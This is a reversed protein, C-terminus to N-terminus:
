KAEVTVDDLWASGTGELLLVLSFRATDNPLTVQKEFHTWGATGELYGTQLFGIPTWSVNMPQVAAHAKVEGASKIWGSVTVKRGAAAEIFQAAQGQAPGGGTSSLRLSAAGGHHEATDRALTVAGSGTWNVAWGDPTAGGAEMGGNVAAIPPAPAAPAPPAAAAAPAPPPDAVPAPVIAPPASAQAATLGTEGPAPAAIRWLGYCEGAAWAERTLPNVRVCTVEHPGAGAGQSSGGSLATTVTLNRWTRGGDTSRCVAAATAYTNQAGAVYVVLPQKPDTAVTWVRQRGFQDAPTDLTTWTKGDWVKLRDQSAAYLRGGAGVALDMLGGEVSAVTQWSAGHDSSAVVADGKKGYLTGTKSDVAYVGDCGDMHAWTGGGDASRLDAAFCSQPDKPDSFSTDTNKMELPKGDPGSAFAWTKGGDRSLRLHRPTGWSDADGVVFLKPTVALGGYEHGGWGKGSVDRYNWTAGGDATFAGNYDQFGVMVTGPAHPSFGFMGGTMVGNYGNNAWHFTKGGDTSKTVWDGGISWAVNADVPSWAAYHQRANYPLPAYASDTTAPQWSAGGDSSVFRPWQFGPKAIWCLMRKPDVPSVAIGVVPLGADRELGRGALPTFTAGKNHSVSVGDSGSVYLAAGSPSLALGDVEEARLNVFTKGRDGSRWLGGNGAAYVTGDPAIKLNSAFGGGSDFGRGPASAIAGHVAMWTHGGNDSRYVGQDNALYYARTCVGLKPNFSAPDWAVAGAIAGTLALVHTWSAAKNRSLYVGNPSAGWNPDWNMSNAAIGLVHAANKPDIAFGNAGRADWGVMAVQWNAGGDLSRYLGGVDTPLLLFNPDAPSVAVPGRPWQAGEGGPFIGKAKADPPLLPMKVWPSPAASVSPASRAPLSSFALLACLAAPAALRRPHTVSQDKM